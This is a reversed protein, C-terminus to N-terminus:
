PYVNLQASGKGDCTMNYTGYKPAIFIEYDYAGIVRSVSAVKVTHKQGDRNDVMFKTGQKINMKGPIGSCNSLQIRYGSRKYDELAKDYPDKTTAPKTTKNDEPKQETAQEGEPVTETPNGENVVETENGSKSSNESTDVSTAKMYILAILATIICVALTILIGKKINGTM